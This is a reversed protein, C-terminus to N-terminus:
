ARQIAWIQQMRYIMIAISIAAIGLVVSSWRSRELLAWLVAIPPILLATVLYLFFELVSGTAVNGFGPAVLAVVFQAILLVEVLAVSLIAADNPSRKAIGLGICYLGALSAVVVQIITFWSIV